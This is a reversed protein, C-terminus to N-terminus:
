AFYKTKLILKYTEADNEKEYVFYHRFLLIETKLVIKKTVVNCRNM